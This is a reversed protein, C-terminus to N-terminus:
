VWRKVKADTKIKRSLGAVDGVIRLGEASRCRSLAVYLMGPNGAWYHNISIQIKDLTLGQTKHYSSGYALRLPMYEIEGIVTGREKPDYYPGGRMTKSGIYDLYIAYWRKSRDENDEISNLQRGQPSNNFCDELSDSSSFSLNRRITMPIRGKFGRKTEVQYEGGVDNMTDIRLREALRFTGLDGNVYRFVGPENALVMVLAGDKLRLVEPINKWECREKGWRESPIEVMLGPLAELRRENYNEVQKNVPFLTIGDFQEDEAPAFEVGCKKLAIAADVGRGQRALQLAELFAPNDQRYVKTLHTLNAEYAPWCPAEFFFKVPEKSNRDDPIPPLQCADGTLILGCSPLGKEERIEAAQEFGEHVLQLHEAGFMSVEDLVLNKKGRGALELAKRKIQGRKAAEQLSRLDFFGLASHITTVGEGLNVAAIGTSASLLAYQPDSEIRQRLVTSKGTGASGLIAETNM